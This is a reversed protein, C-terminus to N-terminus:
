NNRFATYQSENKVANNIKYCENTIVTVLSRREKRDNANIVSQLKEEIASVFKTKCEKKLLCRGNKLFANEERIVNKNILQFIVKDTILPKFIDALDYALPMKNDGPSHVFGIEPTLKTKYIQNLCVSYVIMNGYSILANILNNPPRKVRGYFEVPYVFIEPWASYYIKKATGEIGLLKDISDAKLAEEFLLSLSEVYDCVLNGRRVYYKLNANMNWISAATIQQAIQIRKEDLFAKTQEIITVGNTNNKKPLFSGIYNGSYSFCHLPIHHKSIFGLFRSNFNLSGFSYISDIQEVPIHNSEKSPILEDESLLWDEITIDEELDNEDEILTQYYLTNNKRKLITDSFIYLRKKM